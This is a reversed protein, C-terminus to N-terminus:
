LRFNSNRQFLAGTGCGEWPCTSGMAPKKERTSPYLASGWGIGGEGLFFGATPAASKKKHLARRAGSRETTSVHLRTHGTM